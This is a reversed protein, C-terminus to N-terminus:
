SIKIKRFESIIKKGVIIHVYSQNGTVKLIMTRTDNTEHTKYGKHTNYAELFTPILMFRLSFM